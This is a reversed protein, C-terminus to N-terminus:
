VEDPRSGPDTAPGAEDDQGSEDDPDTDPEVVETAIPGAFKDSTLLVRDAEPVANIRALFERARANVKEVEEPTLKEPM